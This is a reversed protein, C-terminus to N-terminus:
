PRCSVLLARKTGGRWRPDSPFSQAESDKNRGFDLPICYHDDRWSANDKLEREDVQVGRDNIEGGANVTSACRKCLVDKFPSNDLRRKILEEM